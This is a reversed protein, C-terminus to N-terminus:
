GKVILKVKQGARLRDDPGLDNLLRFRELQYDDFAMRRALASVTDGRVVTVVDIIKPALRAAQAASLKEFSQATSAVIAADDVNSPSIFVFHYASDADFAYAVVTIDVSGNNAPVRVERTVASMGNITTQRAKSFQARARSDGLIGQYVQDAYATLGASTLRGGAFQIQTRSNGSTATVASSGNNLYFGPPVEFALRLTPHAFRHDDVYGQEPADGYIMGDIAALFPEDGDRQQDPALGTEAAKKNAREVRDASLPHSRAWAPIQAAEDRGRIRAELASQEGLAALVNASEYPDYGAATMYRIGLDDSQYEQNRSYSLTAVQGLQGAAQAIQGSGTLIGLGIAAMNTWLSRNQRRKSHQAAVHGVEHGLVSALQAENDMVALLGRTVYTYCGPIAFANVVSTNLLTTTCEEGTQSLGSRIAIDRGVRQVMATGPGDYAGGFQALIQPHAQAGQQRESASIQRPADPDFSGVCAAVALASGTILATIKLRRSMM